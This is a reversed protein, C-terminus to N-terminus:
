GCAVTTNDAQQFISGNLWNIINNTCTKNPDALVLVELEYDVFTDTMLGYVLLMLPSAAGHILACLGGLVM